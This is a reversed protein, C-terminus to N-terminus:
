RIYARCIDEEITGPHQTIEGKSSDGVIDRNGWARMFNLHGQNAFSGIGGHNGLGKGDLLAHGVGDGPEAGLGGAKREFDEDIIVLKSGTLGLYADIM